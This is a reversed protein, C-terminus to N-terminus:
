LLLKGYIPKLTVSCSRQLQEAGDKGGSAGSGAASLEVLAPSNYGFGEMVFNNLVLAVLHPKAADFEIRSQGTLGAGADELAKAVAEPKGFFSVSWSM